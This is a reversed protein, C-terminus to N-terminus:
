DVQIQIEKGFLHTFCLPVSRLLFLHNLDVLLWLSFSKQMIKMQIKTWVDIRGILTEGINEWNPRYTKGSRQAFPEGFLMYLSFAIGTDHHDDNDCDDDGGDEDDCQICNM